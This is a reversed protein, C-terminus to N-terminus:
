SQYDLEYRYSGAEVTEPARDSPFEITATTNPPVVVEMILQGNEIRWESSAKGYATELEASAWELQAAIMPRVFFHKYGSHEPDPALGAIREYMWQGIAGYAYHNLSNMGAGNFGDEMSYSNWREWMTTAGQNISYFWSPYSEKFLISLALDQRGMEELVSVIYPTGLFGTRLHGDADDILRVLNQTASEKMSEPILDFEIALLYSTQTEPVNQLRGEADFYYDAFSQAISEAELTYKEVDQENGLVAAVEAMVQSSRGYFALGLISHPTDGFRDNSSYPQLWDGYGRIDPMLGDVMQSRYWSVLDEMMQYNETLVETDGTRLYVEWPIFTAADVWGPSGGKGMIDPIIDPINGNELQDDRMSTLWSKWFAHSDYNFMSTPVFVQADGTWGAREDRQPCDTPIDLFNGRQGWTINDQLQNLKDHSSEFKGIRDLDSHLVVGTAWDNQPEVDEPLGSLEVYRFGHFTFKPEWKVIGDAAATYSDTSKASRYNDTHFTGDPNLMEAFRLTTTQGSQMPMNLKAWGVMDQGFDLIYRGAEVEIIEQVGLVETERVPAFPKPVIRADGLDETAVVPIWDTWEKRADIHEGDYISSTLIPGDMSAQWNEDSVIIEERGDQYVVELQLLLEPYEGYNQIQGSWGFRGAYWGFALLADLTNEGQQLQETVDYTLSDLRNSYSTFGNAFHENGIKEGNLSVEFLGRATVYLRAQEITGDLDFGQQLLSVKEVGEPAVRAPRIWKASWNDKSLLGLELTAPESWSSASGSEDKFQVRWELKERSALPEGGYPVLLSQDSEVWGSDWDASEGSAEIRYATQHKVGEPLKWSFRPTADHYGLPDIFGEGVNLSHAQNPQAENPQVDSAEEQTCNILAFVLLTALLTFLHKRFMKIKVPSELVL